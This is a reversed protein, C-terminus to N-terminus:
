LSTEWYVKANLPIPTLNTISGSFIINYSNRSLLTIPEVKLLTDNSTSTVNFHCTRAPFEIYDSNELWNLKAIIQDNDNESIQIQPVDTGAHIFRVFSKASDPSTSTDALVLIEPHITAELDCAILTYKKEKEITIKAEAVAINSSSIYLKFEREGTYLSYFGYQHGYTTEKEILYINNDGLDRVALDLEETSSASHIFQVQTTEYSTSEEEPGNLNSDSDECGIILAIVVLTLVVRFRNILSNM